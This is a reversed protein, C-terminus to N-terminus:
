ATATMDDLDVNNVSVSHAGTKAITRRCINNAFINCDYGSTESIANNATTVIVCGTVLVGNASVTIANNGISSSEITVGQVIAYDTKITMRGRLRCGIVRKLRATGSYDQLYEGTTVAGSTNILEIDTNEVSTAGVVGKTNCVNKLTCNAVKLDGDTCIITGNKGQAVRGSNKIICDKFTVDGSGFYVANDFGDILNDAYVQTSKVDVARIVYEGAVNKITNGTITLDVLGNTFRIAHGYDGDKLYTNTILNDCIKIGQKPHTGEDDIGICCNNIVNNSIIINTLGSGTNTAGLNIGNGEWRIFNM